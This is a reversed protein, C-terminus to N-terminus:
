PTEFGDRFVSDGAACAAAAGKIRAQAVFRAGVQEPVVRQM